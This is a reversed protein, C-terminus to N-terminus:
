FVIIRRFQFEYSASQNVYGVRVETAGYKDAVSVKPGAKTLWAGGDGKFAYLSAGLAVPGAVTYQIELPDMLWASTGADSLAMYRQIFGSGAWRGNLFQLQLAPEFFNTDTAKAIQALAYVQLGAKKMVRYGFGISGENYDPYDVFGPVRLYLGEVMWKGDDFVKGFIFNQYTLDGNTNIEAVRLDFLNNQAFAPTGAWTLLVMAALVCRM